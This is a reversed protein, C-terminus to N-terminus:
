RKLKKHLAKLTGSVTLVHVAAPKNGVKTMAATATRVLEVSTHNVRIVASKKEDDFSILRMNVKSAGHEGYLKSVSSWVADMFESSRCPESCDISLAVYRRKVKKLM